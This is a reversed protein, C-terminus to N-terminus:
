QGNKKQYEKLRGIIMNAIEEDNSKVLTYYSFSCYCMFDELDAGELGSLRSVIEPNYKTSLRNVEDVHQALYNYMRDLKAKRSFTNYLYSIPHGSYLHPSPNATADAREMENLTIANEISNATKAVDELFVPYPKLAYVTTGKLLISKMTMKIDHRKKENELSDQIILHCVAYGVHTILLTDHNKILIAFNGKENSFTASGTSINHICVNKMPTGQRIDTINGKFVWSNQAPLLATPLLLWITIIFYRM